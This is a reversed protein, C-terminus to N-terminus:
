RDKTAPQKAAANLTGNANTLLGAYGRLNKAAREMADASRSLDTVLMPNTRRHCEVAVQATHKTDKFSNPETPAIGFAQIFDVRGYPQNVRQITLFPLAL